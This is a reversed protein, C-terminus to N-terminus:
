DDRLVEVLLAQAAAIRRKATALSCGCADAVEELREGEVYRLIWAIRSRPEIEDLTRYIRALLAREDATVGTAPVEAGSSEGFLLRRWKRRRLIRQVTRVTVTMLWPRAAEASHIRDLRPLTIFFVEQVVDDVDADDRGLMRAAVRAVYGAYREFLSDFDPPTGEHSGQFPKWGRGRHDAGPSAPRSGVRDTVPKAASPVLELKPRSASMSLNLIGRPPCFPEGRSEITEREQRTTPL